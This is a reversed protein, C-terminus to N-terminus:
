VAGPTERSWRPAIVALATVDLEEAPGLTGTREGHLHRPGPAVQRGLSFGLTGPQGEATLTDGLSLM